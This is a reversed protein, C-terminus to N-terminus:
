HILTMFEFRIGFIISSFKTTSPLYVYGINFNARILDGLKYALSATPEIVIGYGKEGGFEAGGGGALFGTQVSLRRTLQEEYGAVLGGYSFSGDSTNKNLQGTFGAGGIYFNKSSYSVYRWGLLIGNGYYNTLGRIELGVNPSPLTVTSQQPPTITPNVQSAPPVNKQLAPPQSPQIQLTEEATLMLSFMFVLVFIKCYNELM